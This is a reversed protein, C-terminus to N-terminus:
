FKLHELPNIARGNKYVAFHLHPGTSRGTNGVEAIKDGQRVRQGESVASSNLHAYMTQYGGAHTLILYRGFVANFGVTSVTGDMAAKVPSGVAASLDIASHFRRDGGTFPDKRWGFGSTLRGSVPYIFLEGMALKLDERKMKAGPIFLQAGITIKEDQIDNADLIAELPVNFAAAIKQYSDGKAVTYPIGDMNPIRLVDGTHLNRANKMDNSAIIADMSLAHAAAIKSVSDGKRVTYNQWTFTESTNLPFDQKKAPIAAGGHGSAYRYMESFVRSDAQPSLGYGSNEYLLAFYAFVATVLVAVGAVAFPPSVSIGLAKSAAAQARRKSVVTNVPALVAGGTLTGKNKLVAAHPAARRKEVRQTFQLSGYGSNPQYKM